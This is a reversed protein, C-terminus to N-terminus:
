SETGLCRSCAARTETGQGGGCFMRGPAWTVCISSERLEPPQADPDPTLRRRSRTLRGEQHVSPWRRATHECPLAPPPSLPLSVRSPSVSVSVSMHSLCLRSVCSLFVSISLSLSVSLTLSLCLSLSFCSLSVSVHCLCLCSLPCM